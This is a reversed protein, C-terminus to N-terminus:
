SVLVFFDIYMGDPPLTGPVSASAILGTHLLITRAQAPTKGAISEALAQREDPSFTYVWTGRITVVFPSVNRILTQMPGTLHYSVGPRTRSLAATAQQAFARRQYALASCTRRSTVTLSTAEEGLAHSASITTHCQTPLAQEEAPVAFASAFAQTLTTTVTESLRSLDAPAVARYTRAGQGGRFATLNKVFVSGSVTGNLAGAPLNGQSGAQLATAPTTAEGFSPPSATPLTVPADTRVAVGTSSTLVTGAAITQPSAGGNYWTLIGRAARAQQHGTGTAAATASRTLTLPALARTPLALTTTISAPTTKASVIVLTHPYTLCQWLIGLFSVLLVGVLWCVELLEGITFPEDKRSAALPQTDIEAVARLLIQAPDDEEDDQQALPLPAVSQSSPTPSAPV